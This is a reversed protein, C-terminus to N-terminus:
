GTREANGGQKHGTLCSFPSLFSGERIGMAERHGRVPLPHQLGPHCSIGKNCSLLIQLGSFAGARMESVRGVTRGWAKPYLGTALGPLASRAENEWKVSSSGLASSPLSKGQGCAGLAPGLTGPWSPRLPIRAQFGTTLYNTGTLSSLGKQSEEQSRVRRRHERGQTRELGSFTCLIGPIDCARMHSTLM